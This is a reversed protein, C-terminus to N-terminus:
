AGPMRRTPDQPDMSGATGSVPPTPAGAPNGPVGAGLTQGGGVGSQATFERQGTGSIQGSSRDDGGQGSVAQKVADTDTSRVLRAAFFGGAAAVALFRAPHERGMRRAEELVADPGGEDLRRAARQASDALSRVLGTLTSSSDSADAMKRLEDSTSSLSSSLRDTQQRGQTRMEETTSDLVSRAHDKASRIMEGAEQKASEAAAGAHEQVKGAAASAKDSATDSTTGTPSQTGGGPTTTTPSNM